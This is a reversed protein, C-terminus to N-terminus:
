RHASAIEVAWKGSIRGSAHCELCYFADLEVIVAAMAYCRQHKVVPKGGAEVALFCRKGTSYDTFAWFESPPTKDPM